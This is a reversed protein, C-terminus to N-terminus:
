ARLRARVRGIAEPEARWRVIVGSEEWREEIVRGSDHMESLVAQRDYPILLEVEEYTAEFIDIIRAFLSAVAESASVSSIKFLVM